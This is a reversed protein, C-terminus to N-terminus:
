MKLGTDYRNCLRSASSLSPLSKGLTACDDTAEDLEASEDSHRLQSCDRGVQGMRGARASRLGCGRVREGAGRSPLVM